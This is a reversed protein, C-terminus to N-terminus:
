KARAATQTAPSVHPPLALALTRAALARDAPEPFSAAWTTPDPIPPSSNDEKTPPHNAARIILRAVLPIQLQREVALTSDLNSLAAAATAVDEARLADTLLQLYGAQRRANNQIAAVTALADTPKGAAALRQARAIQVEDQFQERILMANVAGLPNAIVAAKVCQDALKDDDLRAAARAAAQYFASKDDSETGAPLEAAHAQLAKLSAAAAKTDGLELQRCFLEYRAALLQSPPAKLIATVFKLKARRAAAHDGQADFRDALAEYGPPQEAPKSADIQALAADVDGRRAYVDAVLIPAPAVGPAPAIYEIKKLIRQSEQPASDALRLAMDACLIARDGADASDFTKELDPFNEGVAFALALDHNSAGTSPQAMWKRYADMDGAQAFATAITPALANRLMGRFREDIALLAKEWLDVTTRLADLNKTQGQVDAIAALERVRLNPPMKETQALALSIFDASSCTKLQTPAAVIPGTGASSPPTDRSALAPDASSAADAALAIGLFVGVSITKSTRHNM